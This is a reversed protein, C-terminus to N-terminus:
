NPAGLVEDGKVFLVLGAVAVGLQLSPKTRTATPSAGEEEGLTELSVKTHGKAWGPVVM